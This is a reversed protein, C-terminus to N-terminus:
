PHIMIITSQSSACSTESHWRSRTIDRFQVGNFFRHFSKLCCLHKLKLRVSGRFYTNRPKDIHYKQRYMTLNNNKRSFPCSKTPRIVKWVGLLDLMFGEVAFCDGAKPPDNFGVGEGGEEIEMEDNRRMCGWIEEASSADEHTTKAASLVSADPHRADAEEGHPRKDAPSGREPASSRGSTSRGWRRRDPWWWRCKGASSGQGWWGSSGDAAPVWRFTKAFHRRGAPNAAWIAPPPCAPTQRFSQQAPWPWSPWTSGTQRWPRPLPLLDWSSPPTWVLCIVGWEKDTTRNAHQFLM